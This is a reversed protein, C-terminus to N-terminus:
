KFEWRQYIMNGILVTKRHDEVPRWQSAGACGPWTM